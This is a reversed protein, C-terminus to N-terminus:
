NVSIICIYKPTKLYIHSCYVSSRVKRVMKDLAVCIEDAGEVSGFYWHSFKNQVEKNGCILYYRCLIYKYFLKIISLICMFCVPTDIYFEM